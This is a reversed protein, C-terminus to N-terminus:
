VRDLAHLDAGCSGLQMCTLVALVFESRRLGLRLRGRVSSDEATYDRVATAEFRTRAYHDILVNLQVHITGPGLKAGRFAGQIAVILHENDEFFELQFLYDQRQLWGLSM